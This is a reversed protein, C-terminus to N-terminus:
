RCSRAGSFGGVVQGTSPDVVVATVNGNTAVQLETGAHSTLLLGHRLTHGSRVTAPGDLAATVEDPSLIAVDTPPPMRRKVPRRGPPYPFQGVTLEVDDGFQENLDRAISEAWPALAIRYPPAPAPEQRLSPSRRLPGPQQAGLRALVERLDDWTAM